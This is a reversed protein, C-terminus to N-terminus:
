AIFNIIMGSMQPLSNNSKEPKELEKRNNPNSNPTKNTSYKPTGQTKEARAQNAMAAAKAAVARDQSSPDAPALAARQIQEAKEITADPDGPVPSTDVQVEGGTAYLKGDPGKTYSFTAGSRVVGSGASIHAMEHARVKQDIAKLELVQAQVKPNQNTWISADDLAAKQFASHSIEVTDNDKIFASTQPRNTNSAPDNCSPKEVQGAKNSNGGILTRYIISATDNSRVANYYYGSHSQIGPNIAGISM